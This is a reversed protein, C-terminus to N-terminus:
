HFAKKLLETGRALPDRRIRQEEEAMLLFVGNLAAQTVHADLDLRAPDAIKEVFAGKRLLRKYAATVGAQATAAAVIPKFQRALEAETHARFYATAAGDGGRVINAADTLTLDRVAALLVPKAVPMAQEAARNLTMEFDEAVRELGYRRLGKDLRALPEPVGIRVKPNAWFGDPQGLRNASRDAADHLLARAVGEPSLAKADKEASSATGGGAMCASLAIAVLPVGCCRNMEALM